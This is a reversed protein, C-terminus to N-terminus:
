KILNLTGYSQTSKSSNMFGEWIIHGDRAGGDADDNYGVTFGLSAKDSLTSAFLAMPISAELTWGKENIVVSRKIGSDTGPDYAVVGGINYRIEGKTNISIQGDDKEFTSTRNCLADIFIEVSDDDWINASDCNISDDAINVFIYLNRKDWATKFSVVAPSDAELPKKVIKSECENWVVEDEVGNINMSYAAFKAEAVAPPYRRPMDYGIDPIDMYTILALEEETPEKTIDKYVEVESINACLGDNGEARNYGTIFIKVFRCLKSEKLPYSTISSTNNKVDFLEQWNEKDTSVSITYDKLNQLDLTTATSGIHKILVEDIYIQKGLDIMVWETSNNRSSRWINRQSLTPTQVFDITGDVIRRVTSDASVESSASCKAGHAVNEREVGKLTKVIIPASKRSENGLTDYVSVRYVHVSGPELGSIVHISKIGNVGEKVANGIFKNGDYIKYGAFTDFQAVQSWSITIATSSKAVLMLNSPTELNVSAFSPVQPVLLLVALVFIIIKNKM